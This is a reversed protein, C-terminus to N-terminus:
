GHKARIQTSDEYTTDLYSEFIKEIYAAAEHGEGRELLEILHAEQEAVTEPGWFNVCRNWIDVAVAGFSNMILPCIINGCLKTILLHFDKADVAITELSEGNRIHEEMQEQKARLQNLDEETRLKALRILAAGEIANRMEVLSIRMDLDFQGGQYKVIAALTEFNGTQAYDEIYIGKRPVIRVFGMRDLEELGFHVLSRSVKMQEALERESPLKDGPKLERSFIRSIIEKLFLERMTPATIEQFEM